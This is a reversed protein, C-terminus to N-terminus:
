RGKSLALAFATLEDDSINIERQEAVLKLKNFINLFNKVRSKGM